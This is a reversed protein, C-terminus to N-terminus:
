HSSREIPFTPDAATDPQAVQVDQEGDDLV